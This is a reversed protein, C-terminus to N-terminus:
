GFGRHGRQQLAANVFAFFVAALIWVISIVLVIIANQRAKPHQCAAVGIIGFILAFMGCCLPFLVLLVIPTQSFQKDLWNQRAPLPPLDVEDYDDERPRRRRPPHPREEFSGEDADEYKAM